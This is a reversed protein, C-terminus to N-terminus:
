SGHGAAHAAILPLLETAEALVSGVSDIGERDVYGLAAALLAAQANGTITTSAAGAGATQTAVTVTGSGGTPTATMQAVDLNHYQGGFTVTYPGGASGTVAVDGPDINSLGELATQVVSAAAAAAIAGTTQGSFTLTFSTLGSGGETVTQVESTTSNAQLWTYFSEARAALDVERGEGKVAAAQYAVQANTTM